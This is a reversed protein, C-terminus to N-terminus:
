IREEGSWGRLKWGHGRVCLAAVYGSGASVERLSWRGAESTDPRTALLAGADGAAISVDFQRLPLSLGAGTAKIYAEKRTWCRFFATYREAPALASLEEQEHASFFRRAIGDADFDQRIHEVDVGIQQGRIFALLAVAGSHSVNVAMDHNAHPPGLAPKDKDSYQFTLDRPDSAIYAGLITRLLARVAVFSQRDRSFHFREARVREDDSLLQQWRPEGAAVAALDVRWLQVESEPLALPGTLSFAPDTINMVPQMNGLNGNLGL